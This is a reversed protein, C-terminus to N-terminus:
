WVVSGLLRSLEGAQLSLDKWKLDHLLEEPNSPEEFLLLEKVFNELKEQNVSELFKIKGEEVEDFFCYDDLTNVAEGLNLIEDWYSQKVWVDEQFSFDSIKKLISIIKEKKQEM